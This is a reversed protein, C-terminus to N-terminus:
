QWRDALRANGEKELYAGGERGQLRQRRQRIVARAPNSRHPRGHGAASLSGALCRAPQRDGSRESSARTFLRIRPRVPMLMTALRLPTAPLSASRRAAQCASSAPLGTAPACVRQQSHKRVPRRLTHAFDASSAKKTGPNHVHRPRTCTQLHRGSRCCRTRWAHQWKHARAERKL